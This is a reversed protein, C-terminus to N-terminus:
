ARSSLVSSFLSLVWRRGNCCCLRISTQCSPSVRAPVSHSCSILYCRFVAWITSKNTLGSKIAESHAGHRHMHFGRTVRSLFPSFGRPCSSVRRRFVLRVQLYAFLGVFSQLDANWAFSLLWECGDPSADWQGPIDLRGYHILEFLAHISFSRFEFSPEESLHAFLAPCSAHGVFDFHVMNPCKFIQFLVSSSLLWLPYLDHGCAPTLRQDETTSAM